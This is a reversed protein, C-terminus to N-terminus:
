IEGARIYVENLASVKNVINTGVQTKLVQFLPQFISPM